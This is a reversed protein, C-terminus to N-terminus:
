LNTKTGQQINKKEPGLGQIMFNLISASGFNNVECYKYFSKIDLERVRSLQLIEFAIVLVFGRLTPM